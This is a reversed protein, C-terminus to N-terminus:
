FAFASVLAGTFGALIAMAAGFAAGQSAGLIDPFVLPNQFAGQYAAGAISLCCGVMLALLIRTLFRSVM